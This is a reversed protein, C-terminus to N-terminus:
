GKCTNLTKLRELLHYAFLIFQEDSNRIYSSLYFVLFMVIPHVSDQTKVFFAIKFTWAVIMVIFVKNTANNLKGQQRTLNIFSKDFKEFMKLMRFYRRRMALGAILMIICYLSTTRIIMKITAKLVKSHFIDPDVQFLLAMLGSLITFHLISIILGLKSTKFSESPYCFGFLGLLKQFRQFPKVAIIFNARYFFARIAEM